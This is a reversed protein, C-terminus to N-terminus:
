NKHKTLSKWEDSDFEVKTLFAREFDPPAKGQAWIKVILKVQVSLFEQVNAAMRCADCLSLGLVVRIPDHEAIPCHMAPVNIAIAGSAENQCNIKQCKM